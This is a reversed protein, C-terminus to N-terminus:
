NSIISGVIEGKYVIERKENVLGKLRLLDHEATFSPHPHYPLVIGKFRDSIEFLVESLVIDSCGYFIKCFWYVNSIHQHDITQLTVERGDFTKWKM